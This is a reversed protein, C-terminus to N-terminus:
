PKELVVWPCEWGVPQKQNFGGAEVFLYDKGAVSQVKMALAQNRSLDLLMDDSWIWQVDATKGNEKISLKPIAFSGKTNKGAVFADISEVQAVAVWNGVVAPNAVFTGDWIFKGEEPDVDRDVLTKEKLPPIKMRELFLNFNGGYKRTKAHHKMFSIGAITVKGTAFEPWWEKPIVRGEPRNGGRRDVGTKNEHFLKGNVYIRYGDGSGVHSIGGHLLRYAYGEEFPPVDFTGRILLVDKEWLTNIPEGCGCFTIACPSSAGSIYAKRGDASGFPALGTKWGAAQPDFDSAFWNEMGKPFTVKRYRGMRDSTGEWKEPPDFSYYHWAMEGRKRAYPLWNYDMVGSQAYLNQLEEMSGADESRAEAFAKLSKWNAGVHQPILEDSVINQVAAKLQPNGITMESGTLFLDRHMLNDEPFRQKSVEYLAELGGPLMVMLSAFSDLMQSDTSPYRGGPPDIAKPGPYALYIKGLTEVLAEQVESPADAAAELRKPLQWNRRIFNPFNQEVAPLVTKYTEQNLALPMVAELAKHCLWWEDCALLETLRGALPILDEVPFEAVLQLLAATTFWAENPDATMALIRAKVAAKPFGPTEQESAFLSARLAIVGTHRVRPDKDDLLPPILHYRGHKVIAAAAVERFRVERHYIFALIEEDTITDKSMKRDVALGTDSAVSENSIDRVRGDPTAPMDFSLFADDATNGWCRDPVAQEKVAFRSRPAGFIALQKRPATFTLGMTIGWSTNDYRDSGGLIGFEGDYRRSMDYFWTRQTMFERYHNPAKDYMLGMAASRWVEGIGGGTHGHLMYSTSYFSKIACADSAKAYLSDEGRPHLQSAAKMAFALMGNRGNDTFTNEPFSDMYPNTGRGAFRYYHALASQLMDEDVDVGCQRALLLFTLTGTGALGMHHGALGRGGWGDAYQTKKVADAIKKMLPLVSEDGTRLYYEAIPPAGWAIYWQYVLDKEGFHQNNAVLKKMWGRVVELDEEDGTSLLFLAKPGGLDIGIDGQQKFREALTRVIKESKPCDLPWTKSYAGLVPISVTVSEPAAGEKKRVVLTVKGDTAEAKTIINGLQIRPDIEKLPEGNITDIIMGKELQGTKDAPSGKEVNMITMGFAPQTLEVGIGVPGFRGIAQTYKNVEIPCTSFLSDRSYFSSGATEDATISLCFMLQVVVGWWLRSALRIRTM